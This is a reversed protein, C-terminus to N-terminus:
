YRISDEDLVAAGIGNTMLICIIYYFPFHPHLEYHHHQHHDCQGGALEGALGCDAAGM